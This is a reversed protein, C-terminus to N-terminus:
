PPDVSVIRDKASWSPPADRMECKEGPLVVIPPKTDLTLGGEADARRKREATASFRDEECYPLGSRPAAPKESTATPASAGEDESGGCGALLVLLLLALRKM